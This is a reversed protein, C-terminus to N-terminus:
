EEVAFVRAIELPLMERLRNKVVFGEAGFGRCTGMMDEGLVTIIIIRSRPSAARIGKLVDLGSLGPMFLDLLILDPKLVQAMDIAEDGRHAVGAVETETESELFVRIARAAAPADDVVLTRIPRVRQETENM